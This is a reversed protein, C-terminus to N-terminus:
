KRGRVNGISSEVLDSRSPVMMSSSRLHFEVKLSDIHFSEKKKALGGIGDGFRHLKCDAYIRVWFRAEESVIRIGRVKRLVLFLEVNIVHHQVHLTQFHLLEKLTMLDKRLHSFYAISEEVPVLVVSRGAASMSGVANSQPKLMKNGLPYRLTEKERLGSFESIESDTVNKTKKSMCLTNSIM